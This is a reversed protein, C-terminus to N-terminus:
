SERHVHSRENRGSQRTLMNVANLGKTRRATTNESLGHKVHVCLASKFVADYMMEKENRNIYQTFDRTIYM